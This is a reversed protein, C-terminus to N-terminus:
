FPWTPGNWIHWWWPLGPGGSVVRFIQRGGKVYGPGIRLIPNSNIRSAYFGGLLIDFEINTPQIGIVEPPAWGTTNGHSDCWFDGCIHRGAWVWTQFTFLAGDSGGATPTANTFSDGIPPCTIDGCQATPIIAGWVGWPNTPFGNPLGNTENPFHIPQSPPNGSPPTGGGSPPSPSGGGGGGVPWGIGIGVGGGGEDGGGGGAGGLDDCNSHGEYTCIVLYFGLPDVNSLPNNAVYAYRNWTQPNTLDVAALGAPDPVLWRGQSSAQQRFLFDYIGPTTDERQGTFNRNTTGGSEDYIEGFPAYARDYTATGGGTVALRSSGLWDAHQFYGTGDGNHVAVMGGVMPDMYKLFATGNTYAFKSGSPSYVIQTYTGGNNLEVARGLADFTTQVGAATTQRGEADYTYHYSLNDTTVNGM